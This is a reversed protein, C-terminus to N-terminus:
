CRCNTGKEEVQATPVSRYHPGHIAKAADPDRIDPHCKSVCLSFWFSYSLHGVCSMTNEARSRKCSTQERQLRRASGVDCPFDGRGGLMGAKGRTGGVDVHHMHVKMM